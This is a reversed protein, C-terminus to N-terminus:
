EIEKIEAEVAIKKLADVGKRCADKSSYWDSEALVKNNAAILQYKYESKLRHKTIEYRASAM